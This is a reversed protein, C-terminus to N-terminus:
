NIKSHTLQKLEELKARSYLIAGLLLKKESMRMLVALRSCDLISEDKIIKEDEDLLTPYQALLLSCRHLYIFVDVDTIFTVLKCRKELYEVVVVDDSYWNTDRLKELPDKESILQQM